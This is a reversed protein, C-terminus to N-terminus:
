GFDVALGPRLAPAASGAFCGPRRHRYSYYDAAWRALDMLDPPLLPEPDIVSEIPKLQAATTAAATWGVCLGVVSGSGFPVRIRGGPVPELGDPVAYDFLTRLPKPVAVRVIRPTTPDTMFRHM